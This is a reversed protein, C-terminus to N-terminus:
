EPIGDWGRRDWVAQLRTWVADSMTYKWVGGLLKAFQPDRRAEAEVRDIFANGHHGLLNEVPGASLVQQIAISQDQHHIELILLWLTEPDNYELDYLDTADAYLARDPSDKPAHWYKIWDSALSALENQNM